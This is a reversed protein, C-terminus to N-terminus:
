GLAHRYASTMRAEFRETSTRLGERLPPSALIKRTRAPLPRALRDLGGRTARDLGSLARVYSALAPAAAHARLLVDLVGERGREDLAAETAIREGWGDFFPAIPVVLARSVRLGRAERLPLFRHNEAAMVAKNLRGALAHEGDYRSPDDHGLRVYREVWTSRHPTRPPLAEIVRSLDGGNHALTSAVRLALVADGSARAAAFVAAEHALEADIATALRDALDGAGLALARGLAGARVSLWEGAHGHVAGAGPVDVVRASVPRPDWAAAEDVVGLAAELVERREIEQWLHHRIHPDVDTPVLTAVSTFHAALLLRLYPVLADPERWAGELAPADLLVERWADAVPADLAWRATSRVQALLVSPAFGRRLSARRATGNTETPDSVVGSRM